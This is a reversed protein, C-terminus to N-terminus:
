LRKKITATRPELIRRTKESLSTISINVAILHDKSLEKLIDL